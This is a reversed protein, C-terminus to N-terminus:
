KKSNARNLEDQVGTSHQRSRQVTTKGFNYVLTFRFIKKEEREKLVIDMNQYNVSAIMSPNCLINDYSLRIRARDHYFKKQLGISAGYQETVKFIGYAVPSTYEFTFEGSWGKRFTFENQSNFVWTFSGNNLEAGQFNGKYVNYFGSIYNESMWWKAIPIPFELELSYNELVDLNDKVAYSTQISDVQKIVEMIVDSTRSYTFTACAADMYCYSLEASNTFQPRLFPNGEQYTYPDLFDKFPNLDEYDPRDIRRDLSLDLANNKNIKYSIFVTPFVQFYKRTFDSDNIVQHGKAITQEGRLGLQFSFKDFEKSIDAYLANINESYTFHNTKTTDLTEMGTSINFYQVDNDTVVLSSKAGAEFKVTKGIPKSLDFKGSRIDVSLPVKSRLMYPAGMVSGLSDYSDTTTHLDSNFKFVAYDLDTTFFGGVSDIDWKYNLNAAFNGQDEDVHSNTISSSLPESSGNTIDTINFTNKSGKNGWGTVSFGLTHSKSLFFDAGAKYNFITNEHVMNSYQTFISSLLGSSDRFKRTINFRDYSQRHAYFGSGFVNVKENRYNFNLGGNEKAYLGQQYNTFVTGNFGLYKSKKLKINIIGANGSADYKSPPNTMLEIQDAQSSPMTSLLNMLQEGSLYTMKGDIMVMVNSKGKFTINGNNDIIVGPSKKLVDLVTGGTSVISNEVNVVTMGPKHEILPRKDTVEVEDLKKADSKLVLSGFNKNESLPFKPLISDALGVQSLKLLYDGEKVNEFIFEGKEDSAVAKVLSSDAASLLLVNVFELPASKEDTVSGKILYANAEQALVSFSCFLSVFSLAIRTM